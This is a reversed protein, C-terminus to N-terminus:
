LALQDRNLGLARALRNLEHETPEARGNVIRSLRTESIRATQAVDVQCLGRRVIELKLESVKRM